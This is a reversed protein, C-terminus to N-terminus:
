ENPYISPKAKQTLEEIRSKILKSVFEKKGSKEGATFGENFAEAVVDVHYYNNAVTSRVDDKHKKLYSQFSDTGSKGISQVSM